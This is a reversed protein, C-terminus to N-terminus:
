LEGSAMQRSPVLLLRIFLLAMISYVHFLNKTFIEKVLPCIVKLYPPAPMAELLYTKM